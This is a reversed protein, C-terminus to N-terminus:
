LSVSNVILKLELKWNEERDPLRDTNNMKEDMESFSHHCLVHFVDGALDCLTSILWDM